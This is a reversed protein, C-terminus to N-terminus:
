GNRGLVSEGPPASDGELLRRAFREDAEDRFLEGIVVVENIGDEGRGFGLRLDHLLAVAYIANNGRDFSAATDREGGIAERINEAPPYLKQPKYGLRLRDVDTERRVFTRKARRRFREPSARLLCM